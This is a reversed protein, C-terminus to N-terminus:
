QTEEKTEGMWHFLLTVMSSSFLASILTITFKPLTASTVYLGCISAGMLGAVLIEKKKM